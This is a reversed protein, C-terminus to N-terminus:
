NLDKHVRTRILFEAEDLISKTRSGLTGGMGTYGVVLSELFSLVSLCFHSNTSLADSIERFGQEMEVLREYAYARPASALAWALSRYIKLKDRVQRDSPDNLRALCVLTEKHIVKAQEHEGIVEFAGALTLRLMLGEETSPAAAALAHTMDRATRPMGLRWLTRTVVGISLYNAEMESPSIDVFAQKILDAFLAAVKEQGFHGAVVIGKELLRLREVGSVQTAVGAVGKLLQPVHHAGLRPLYDLVGLYIRLSDKVACTPAMAKHCLSEIEVLLQPTETADNLRAFEPGELDQSAQRRAALLAPTAAVRELPELIESVDRLRDIKYRRYIDCQMRAEVLPRPLPTGVPEGALAQAIRAKFMNLLIGHTEDKKAELTTTAEGELVRATRERGSRALAYAVILKAYSWTLEVPAENATRTRPYKQMRELLAVLRQEIEEQGQLSRDNDLRRLFTPLERDVSLGKHMRALVIDRCRALGLPDGGALSSVKRQALWLLRSDLYDGSCELWRQAQLTVGGPMQELDLLQSVVDSPRVQREGCPDFGCRLIEDRSLNLRTRVATAWEALLDADGGGWLVHSWCLAADAENGLTDNVRALGLLTQQRAPDEVPTSAQLEIYAKELTLQEERQLDTSEGPLTLEVPPPSSVQKERKGSKAKRAKGKRVETTRSPAPKPEAYNEVQPLREDRPATRMPAFEWITAAAWAKLVEHAQAAVYEIWQSLPLFASAAIAESNFGEPVRHLWYILEPDPAVIDRLTEQRLPPDIRRGQPVYLSRLQASQVYAEGVVDIVVPPEIRPAPRSRLLVLPAAGEKPVVAFTLKELVEQPLGNVLEEVQELARDRVVWLTVPVGTEGPVLALKLQIKGEIEAPTHVEPADIELKVIRQIETWAVAGVRVWPAKDPVLVMSGQPAVISEFMPHNFGLEVWVGRTKSERFAVLGHDHDCARVITYYSPAVVRLLYTGTRLRCFAQQQCGLRLLEGAVALLSSEQPVMLIVPLESPVEVGVRVLPVAEVWNAVTTTKEGVPALGVEAGLSGLTQKVRQPMPVHPRILVANKEYAVDAKVNAIGPPVAGARIAVLLAAASDFTIWDM